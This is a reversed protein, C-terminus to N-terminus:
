VSTRSPPHDLERLRRRLERRRADSIQRRQFQRRYYDVTEVFAIPAILRRRVRRRRGPDSLVQFSHDLLRRAVSPAPPPDREIRELLQYYRSDILSRYATWHLGFFAFPSRTNRLPHPPPIVMGADCLSYLFELSGPPADLRDVLAGPRQFDVRLATLLEGLKPCPALASVPASFDPRLRVPGRRLADDGFDAIAAPAPSPTDPLRKQLAAAALRWSLAPADVTIGFGGRHRARIRGAIGLGARRGPIGILLVAHTADPDPARARVALARHRCIKRRADAWATATADLLRYVAPSNGGVDIVAAQHNVLENSPGRAPRAAIQSSDM